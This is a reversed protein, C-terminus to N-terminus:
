EQKGGKAKEQAERIIEACHTAWDDETWQPINKMLEPNDIDNGMVEWEGDPLMDDFHSIMKGQVLVFGAADESWEVHYWSYPTDPNKPNHFWLIDREYIPVGKVAVRGTARCLTDPNIEAQYTPQPLNWDAFGQFILYHHNNKREKEETWGLPSPCVERLMAYFGSYWRDKDREDVGKARCYNNLM